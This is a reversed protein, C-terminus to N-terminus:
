GGRAKSGQASCAPTTWLCHPLAHLAPCVASCPGHQAHKHEQAQAGGARTCLMRARLCLIRAIECLLTQNPRLGFNIRSQLLRGPQITSLAVLETHMFVATDAMQIWQLQEVPGSRCRHEQIESQIHMIMLLQVANGLCMLPVVAQSTILSRWLCADLRYAGARHCTKRCLMCCYRVTRAFSKPAAVKSLSSGSATSKTAAAALRREWLKLMVQSLRNAM